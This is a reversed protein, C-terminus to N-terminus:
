LWVDKWGEEGAPRACIWALHSSTTPVHEGRFDREPWRLQFAARGDMQLANGNCATYAILPMHLLWLCLMNKCKPALWSSCSLGQPHSSARTSLVQCVFVCRLHETGIDLNSMLGYALSLLLFYRLFSVFLAFCFRTFLRELHTQHSDVIKHGGQMRQQM